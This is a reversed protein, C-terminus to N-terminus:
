HFRTELVESVRYADDVLLVRRWKDFTTCPHSIGFAIRDGVELAVGTEDVTLYGHQDDLKVLHSAPPRSPASEKRRVMELPMPLGSDFSADRRGLGVICRGAEPCSVVEAWVRVAPHLRELESAAGCFPSNAAYLGDDHVLYCGSRVVLMASHGGFDASPGLAAVVRDFFKSGGASVLVPQSAIFMGDNALEVAISRVENLYGDVNTLEQMSRESGAVGEYGEVGVLELCSARLVARCVERASELSRVGTRGGRVGVEVLVRVTGRLGAARLGEELIGVGALSDVLCYVEHSAARLAVWATDPGSVVENAILIREAGAEAAVEGQTANAVTIGWADGRLQRRFLEPCMTTKGHPALVFGERRAFAAMLEVNHEVATASLTMVPLAIEGAAVSRGLLEGGATLSM